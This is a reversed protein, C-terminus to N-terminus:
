IVPLILSATLGGTWIYLQPILFYATVGGVRRWLYCINVITVRKEPHMLNNSAYTVVIGTSSAGAGMVIRSIIILLVTQDGGYEVGLWFILQGVFVSGM